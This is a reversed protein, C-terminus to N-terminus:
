PGLRVQPRCDRELWETIGFTDGRAYYGRDDLGSRLFTRNNFIQGDDLGYVHIMEHLLVNEQFRGGMEGAGAEFAAGVLVVGTGPIVAANGRLAESLTRQDGNGAFSDVTRTGAEGRVDIVDLRRKTTM